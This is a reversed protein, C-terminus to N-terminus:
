DIRVFDPEPGEGLIWRYVSVTQVAIDKWDYRRVYERGRSGMAEREEDSLATAERLGNVLPEVGTDIWWGCRYTALDAWPAGRTTLVPVSHALAEAVVVGFNESFTPLVFLDAERYIASKRDGDVEGLYDVVNEIGHRRAATMVETLHGGEDPGAIRLRWGRPKLQGWAAILNLLGKKPHIRSLFLAIRPARVRALRAGGENGVELSVGNPIIAVPRKLGLRRINLYEDVSTAVLLAASELHRHQFLGMAVRKKLAKHSMAWPELMGRPHVVLPIGHCRAARSAWYNAPLWLGHSHILSPIQCETIRTLENRVPLGLILSYRSASEAVLRNVRDALSPVTPEYKFGQSLLGIRVDDVAALSDVLQVVTRSPGGARPHLGAVVHLTSIFNPM